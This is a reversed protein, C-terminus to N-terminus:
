SVMVDLSFIIEKKFSNKKGKGEFRKLSVDIHKQLIKIFNPESVIQKSSVLLSLDHAFADIQQPLKNAYLNSSIFLLCFSSFLLALIKSSKLLRYM